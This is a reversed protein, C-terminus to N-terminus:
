QLRVGLADVVQGFSHGPEMLASGFEHFQGDGCLDPPFIILAEISNFRVLGAVGEAGRRDLYARLHPCRHAERHHPDVWIQVVEIRVAEGSETQLTVFDPLSDLVYHVLDPRPLDATDNNNLLWRCSWIRCEPPMTDADSHVACGQGHVQHRCREGARKHLPPVPLLKCCLQCEDCRRRVPRSQGM